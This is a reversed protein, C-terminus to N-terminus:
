RRAKIIANKQAASPAAILSTSATFAAVMDSYTFGDGQDPFNVGNTGYLGVAGGNANVEDALDGIRRALTQYATYISYMEDRARTTFDAPTAM